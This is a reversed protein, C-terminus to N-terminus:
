NAAPRRGDGAVPRDWDWRLEAVRDMDLHHGCPHVTITGPVYEWSTVAAGCDPCPDANTTPMPGPKAAPASAVLSDEASALVAARYGAIFERRLGHPGGMLRPEAIHREWAAVALASLEEDTM